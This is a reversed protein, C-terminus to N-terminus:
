CRPQCTLKTKQKVTPALKVLVSCQQGIVDFMFSEFPYMFLFLMLLLMDPYFSLARRDKFCQSLNLM